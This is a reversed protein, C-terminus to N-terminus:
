TAGVGLAITLVSVIAFVPTRALARLAYRVDQAFDRLWIMGRGARMHERHREVGGFAILAQRRADALNMGARVNKQTEQEIHFSFEEEMRVDAAKPRFLSLLRALLGHM